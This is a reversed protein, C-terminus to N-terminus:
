ASLSYFVALTGPTGTQGLEAYRLSFWFDESVDLPIKLRQKNSTADVEKTRLALPLLKTVGWEPAGTETAPMTGTLLTESPSSLDQITMDEWVDTTVAAPQAAQASVRPILVPYGGIAGGSYYVRLTIRRAGELDIIGSDTFAGSAALAASAVLTQLSGKAPIPTRGKSMAKMLTSDASM